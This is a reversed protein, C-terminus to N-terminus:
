SLNRERTELQLQIQHGVGMTSITPNSVVRCLHDALVGNTVIPIDVWAAGMDAESDLWTRFSPLEADTCYASASVRTTYSSSIRRVRDPGQEMETRQIPLEESLQYGQVLPAALPWAM